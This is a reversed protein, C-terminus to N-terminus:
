NRIAEYVGRGKQRVSPNETEPEELKNVFIFEDKGVVFKKLEILDVRYDIKKVLRPVTLKISPALVVVRIQLRDWDIGLGKPQDKAELWMEKIADPHTEAWVAYRLLQPLIGEDVM